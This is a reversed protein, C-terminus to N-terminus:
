IYIGSEEWLEQWTRLVRERTSNWDDDSFAIEQGVEKDRFVDVFIISM